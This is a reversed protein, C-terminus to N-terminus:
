SPFDEEQEAAAAAMRDAHRHCKDAFAILRAAGKAANIAAARIEAETANGHTRDFMPQLHDRGFNALMKGFPKADDSAADHGAYFHAHRHRITDTMGRSTVADAAQKALDDGASLIQLDHIM